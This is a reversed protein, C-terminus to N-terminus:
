ASGSISGPVGLSEPPSLIFTFTFVSGHGIEPEPVSSFRITGSYKEVIKKAIVLGLGIGNTNMVSNKNQIFGFLKFLKSHDCSPIGVGTDAM